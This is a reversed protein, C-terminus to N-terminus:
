KPIKWSSTADVRFRRYNSYRAKCRTVQPGSRMAYVETMTSPLPLDWDDFHAFEVELEIHEIAPRGALISVRELRGNESDVRITGRLPLERGEGTGVLYPASRERFSVECTRAEARADDALDLELRHIGGPGDSLLLPLILTPVNLNRVIEGINFRASEEILARTENPDKDGALFLREIREGREAVEKGDVKAVDRFGYFAGSPLRVLLFDSGLSRQAVVTNHRLKMPIWASRDDAQLVEQEYDEWAVAAALANALEQASASIRPVLDELACRESATALGSSM